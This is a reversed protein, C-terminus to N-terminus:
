DVNVPSSKAQGGASTAQTFHRDNITVYFSAGGTSLELYYYVKEETTDVDVSSATPSSEMVVPPNFLPLLALMIPLGVAAVWGNESQKGAQAIPM